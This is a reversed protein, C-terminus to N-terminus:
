SSGVRTQSDVGTHQQSAMLPSMPTGDFRTYSSAQGIPASVAAVMMVVGATGTLRAAFRAVPTM